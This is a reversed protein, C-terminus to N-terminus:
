ALNFSLLILGFIQNRRKKVYLFVVVFIVIKQQFYFQNDPGVMYCHSLGFALSRVLEQGSKFRNLSTGSSNRDALSVDEKEDCFHRSEEFM